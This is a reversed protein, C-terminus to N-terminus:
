NDMRENGEGEKLKYFMILAVGTYCIFALYFVATFGFNISIITASVSAIVSFFGNIGWLFPLESEKVANAGLPFATGMLFSAPAVVLLTILVRVFFPAGLTAHLLPSLAVAIILLLASLAFLTKKDRFIKQNSFFSGLGSFLLISFLAISLSYSPHGLYLVLKQTLVIEVFMFGLGILSFYSVMDWKLKTKDKARLFYLPQFIFIVGLFLLIIFIAILITQGSFVNLPSFGSNIGTFLTSFKRLEFFFPKDDTPASVIYPYEEILKKSLADDAYLFRQFVNSQVVEKHPMVLPIFKNKEIYEEGRLMEKYAFTGKKLVLLTYADSVLFMVRNKPDVGMESLATRVINLLRISFRPNGAEDPAFWSTMTFYGDENLSNYYSKFAEVSYLNNESLAFAGAHTSSFTDVGSLQIIDYNKNSSEIFNRGEDVVIEIGDIKGSYIGGSYDDFDKQIAKVIVPNIEVGTIDKIGYHKAALLDMGGGAGIHLSSLNKRGLQYVLTAPMYDFFDLDQPYKIISTYAWSDIVIGHREPLSGKEAKFNPSIGWLGIEPYASEDPNQIVDVKSLASWGTFIVDNARDKVLGLIKDGPPEMPFLAPLFLSPFIVTLAVLAFLKEKLSSASILASLSILVVIFPIVIHGNLSNFLLIFLLAGIASGIMNISYYVGISQKRERLIWGVTLGFLFFPAFLSLLMTFLVLLGTRQFVLNIPTFTIRTLVIYSVFTVASSISILTSFSFKESFKRAVALFVGSVSFGLMAVSIIMFGFHYWVVISFFKTFSLQISLLAMSFVFLAILEPVQKRNLQKIKM